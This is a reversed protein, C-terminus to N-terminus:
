PVTIAVMVELPLGFTGGPCMKKVKLRRYPVHPPYRRSRAHVRLVVRFVVESM